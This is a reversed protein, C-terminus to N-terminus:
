KAGLSTWVEYVVTGCLWLGLGGLMLALGAVGYECNNASYAFLGAAISVQLAALSLARIM